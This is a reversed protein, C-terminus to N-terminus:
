LLALSILDGSKLKYDNGHPHYMISHNEFSFTIIEFLGRLRLRVKALPVDIQSSNHQDPM